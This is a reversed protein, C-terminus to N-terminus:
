EVQSIQIVYPASDTKARKGGLKRKRFSLPRLIRRHANIWKAQQEQIIFPAYNMEARKGGLKRFRFPLPRMIRRHANVV